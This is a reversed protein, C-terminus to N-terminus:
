RRALSRLWLAAAVRGDPNRITRLVARVNADRSRTRGFAMVESQVATRVEPSLQGWHELAFGVRWAAVTYDLPVLDYSRTLHQLGVPGISGRRQTDIYMLRLRAANNYPSLALARNAEAEAAASSRDTTLLEFARREHPESFGLSKGNFPPLPTGALTLLALVTAILTGGVLAAAAPLRWSIRKRNM